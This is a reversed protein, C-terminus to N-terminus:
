ELIRVNPILSSGPLKNRRIMVVAKYVDEIKLKKGKALSLATSKLSENRSKYSIELKIKKNLRFIILMVVLHKYKSKFLSTRYGFGCESNNFFAKKGTKLNFTIVEYVSDSIERGYAGINGVLGGGVTGPILALNEIGGFGKKVAYTVVKHWNEGAGAKIYVLNNLEQVIQIGTLSMKIVLGAFNKHFFTNTGGGLVFTDLNKFKKQVAVTDLDFESQINIYYKCVSNIKLSNLNKLKM